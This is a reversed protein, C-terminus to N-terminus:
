CASTPPTSSATSPSTSATGPVPDYGGPHFPRCRLLRGRKGLVELDWMAFSGPGLPHARGGAVLRDRAAAVAPDSLELAALTAHSPLIM